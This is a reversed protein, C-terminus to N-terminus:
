EETKESTAENAVQAQLRTRFNELPYFLTQAIVGGAAGAFADIFVEYIGSNQVM